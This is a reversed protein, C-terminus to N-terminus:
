VKEAGTDIFVSVGKVCTGSMYRSPLSYLMVLLKCSGGCAFVVVVVMEVYPWWDGGLWWVVGDGGSHGSGGCAVM